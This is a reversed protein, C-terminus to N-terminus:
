GRIIYINFYCEQLFVYIILMIKKSIILLLRSFNFIFILFNFGLFHACLVLYVVDLAVLSAVMKTLDKVHDTCLLAARLVSSTATGTDLLLVLRM